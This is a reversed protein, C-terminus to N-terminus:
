RKMSKNISVTSILRSIMSIDCSGKALENSLLSANTAISIIAQPNKERAYKLRGILNEDLLPENMLFLAIKPVNNQGCEDIIKKYVEWPMKGQSLEDAVQSYACMTCGFNCSSSTQIRVVWPFSRKKRGTTKPFKSALKCKLKIKILKLYQRYWYFM